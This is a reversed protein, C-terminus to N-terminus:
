SCCVPQVQLLTPGQVSCFIELQNDTGKPVILCAQTEMYFHEQGGIYMSGELVHEAEDLARSADGSCMETSPALYSGAEVAQQVNV